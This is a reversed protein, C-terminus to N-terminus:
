VERWTYIMKSFSPSGSPCISSHDGFGGNVFCPPKENEGSLRDAGRGTM